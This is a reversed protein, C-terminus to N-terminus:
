LGAIPCLGASKTLRLKQDLESRLNVLLRIALESEERDVVAVAKHHVVEWDPKSRTEVAMRVTQRM